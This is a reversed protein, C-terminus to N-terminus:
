WEVSKACYHNGTLRESIFSGIVISTCQEITVAVTLLCEIICSEVVTLLCKIICSEEVTLLCKIICSEEVGITNKIDV